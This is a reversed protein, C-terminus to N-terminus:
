ATEAEPQKVELRFATPTKGTREKFFTSFYRQTSFGLADSIEVMTMNTHALLEKARNLKYDNIYNGLSQGTLEKFKAYLTSRSMLMKAVIDDVGFGTQNVNEEILKKIELLFAEADNSHRKDEPIIDSAQRRYWQKVRDFSKLVSVCRQELVAVDFPKTLYNDAGFNSGNIISLEELRTTLMIVPIHSYQRTKKIISCLEIGSLEPLRAETIILDPNSNKIHTLADNGNSAEIVRRFLKGLAESLLERLEPDDEVIIVTLHSMDFDSNDSDEIETNGPLLKSIDPLQLKEGTNLDSTKWLEVTTNIIDRMKNTNRFINDLEERMAEENEKKSDLNDLLSKLRSYIITLPTRIEYNLNMLYGAEKELSQRRNQEIIKNRRQRRKSTYFATALVITALALISIAVIVIPKRWWAVPVMIAGMFVPENWNGDPGLTSAYIDYKGGQSAQLHGLTLTNDTTEITSNIGKSGIFLRIPDPYLPHTGAGTFRLRVTNYSDPLRATGGNIEVPLGDIFVERLSLPPPIDQRIYDEMSPLSIRLLGNVGGILIQHPSSVIAKYIFENPLVGDDPGFVSIAGNVLNKAFAKGLAFLWIRDENVTMATVGSGGPMSKDPPSVNGTDFDYKVVGSSTGAYIYRDGDYAACEIVAGPVKFITSLSDEDLDVAYVRNEGFCFLNGMDNHFVKLKNSPGEPELVAVKKGDLDSLYIKDSILAIRNGPLRKVDIPIGSRRYKESIQSIFKPVPSIEEREKNFLFLGNDYTSIILHRPDFNDISVVKMGATSPVPLLNNTAERNFEMLGDGDFGVWTKDNDTLISTVTLAETEPVGRFTKLPSKKISVMGGRVTGAYVYHRDTDHFLCNASRLTSPADSDFDIRESVGTSKDYCIIGDGDTAFLLKGPETELIDRVVGNEGTEVKTIRTPHTFHNVRMVGDGFESLWLEGESDVHSAMIRKGHYVESPEVDGSKTNYIWIGDRLTTLLLRDRGWPHIASYYKDSGGQTPRQTVTRTAYDYFFISGAGGFLVGNHQLHHSRARLPRGDTDVAVFSDKDRNYIAVGTSCIVWLNDRGDEFIEIINNDPLTESLEPNRKYTKIKGKDYRNLGNQTGIWIYDYSDVFVSKVNPNSLGQSLSINHFLYNSSFAHLPIAFSIIVSFLLFYLFLHSNKM